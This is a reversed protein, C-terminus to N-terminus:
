TVRQMKFSGKSGKSEISSLMQCVRPLTFTHDEQGGTHDQQQTPTAVAMRLVDRGARVNRRPPITGVSQKHIDLSLSQPSFREQTSLTLIKRKFIIPALSIAWWEERAGVSSLEYDGTVGPIESPGYGISMGRM